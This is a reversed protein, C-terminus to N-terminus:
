FHNKELPIKSEIVKYKIKDRKLEKVFDIKIDVEGNFIKKLGKIIMSNSEDNYSANKIILIEINEKSFQILKFMEVGLVSALFEKPIHPSILEGDVTTLFDMIKGGMIKMMPLGRGCSCMDSSPIGIDGIDYRIIPMTYNFLCTYVIKGEEGISVEEGDKLFQMVISDIDVHYGEHFSCEWATRRLEFCGVMDSIKVDFFDEVYDRVYDDLIEGNTTIIKPKISKINHEQLYRTILFLDTPLCDLVRPRFKELLQIKKELPAFVSIYFPSLFGIKQIYDYGRSKKNRYDPTGIVCWKDFYKLGNGLYSRLLIAKAFDDAKKDYAIKLPVGTSGSTDWIICKNLNVKKSVINQPYNEKIDNKTVLPIKNLDELTSIDSPHINENKFLNHYFPINGYAYHIIARLKKNQLERLEEVSKWQNKNVNHLFQLQRFLSM